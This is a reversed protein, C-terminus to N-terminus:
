PRLASFSTNVGKTHGVRLPRSIIVVGATTTLALTRVASIAGVPMSWCALVSVAASATTAFVTQAAPLYLGAASFAISKDEEIQPGALEKAISSLRMTHPKRLM